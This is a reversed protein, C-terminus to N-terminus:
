VCVCVFFVFSNAEKWPDSSYLLTVFQNCQIFCICCFTMIFVIHGQTPVYRYQELPRVAERWRFQKWRSRHLILDPLYDRCLLFFPIYVAISLRLQLFQLRLVLLLDSILATLYPSIFSIFPLSLPSLPNPFPFTLKSLSPSTPPGGWPFKAWPNPFKIMTYLSRSLNWGMNSQIAEM